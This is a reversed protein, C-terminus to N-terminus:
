AAKTTAASNRGNKKRVRNRATTPTTSFHSDSKEIEVKGCGMETMTRVRQKEIALKALKVQLAAIKRDLEAPNLTLYEKRLQRKAKEPVEASQMLKNYPTLPADYTKKVKSGLRQKSALKMVPLFCNTYLRLLSYLENLLALEQATDYRAYGVTKRVVSYNKEEVYCNDNKRYPRGRTFKIAQTSCYAILHNNIFESGNDSDIGLLKFPLRAQIEQLAEFVWVQAKNKVARTETWGTCVDTVDLTHCYEGSSNGGDHAVLDVEM